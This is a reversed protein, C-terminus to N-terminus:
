KKYFHKSLKLYTQWKSLERREKRIIKKIHEQTVRRIKETEFHETKLKNYQTLGGRYVHVGMVFEAFMEYKTIIFNLDRLMQEFNGGMKWRNRGYGMDLNYLYAPDAGAFLERVYDIGNIAFEMRDFPVFITDVGQYAYEIVWQNKILVLRAPTADSPQPVFVGRWTSRSPMGMAAQASRLKKPDRFKQFITGKYGAHRQLVDFYKAVKAREKKTLLNRLPDTLKRLNFGSASDFGDAYRRLKIIAQRYEGNTILKIAM